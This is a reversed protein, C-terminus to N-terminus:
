IGRQAGGILGAVHTGHGYDDSPRARRIGGRTFDYFAAIRGAFAPTDAIGSDIVAVTVGEGADEDASLGLTALLTSAASADDDGDDGSEGHSGRGDHGRRGHKAPRREDRWSGGADTASVEADLSCGEVAFSTCLDAIESASLEVALANIGPLDAEITKKEVQRRVWSRYGERARVIVSQRAVGARAGDALARDLKAPGQAFVSVPLLFAALAGTAVARRVFSSQIM